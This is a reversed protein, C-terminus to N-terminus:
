PRVKESDPTADRQADDLWDDARQKAQSLKVAYGKALPRYRGDAGIHEARPLPYVAWCYPAGSNGTIYEILLKRTPSLKQWEGADKKDWGDQKSM